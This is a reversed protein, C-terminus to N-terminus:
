KKVRQRAAPAVERPTELDKLFAAFKPHARIGDFDSDKQIHEINAATFYGGAKAKRLLELSRDILTERDKDIGAACLAFTCAADYRQGERNMTQTEAWTAFRQATAVADAPKQRHLLAKVRIALLGPIQEPKLTFAYELDAIAKEANRCDSLKSRIWPLDEEYFGPKSYGIALKEAKICEEIAKQFQHTQEYFLAVKSYSVTLDRQAEASNPDAEVLQLRVKQGKEYNALADKTYHLSLLVDGLRDYSMALDRQHVLNLPDAVTLRMRVEYSKRYFDLAVKSRGLQNNIDGLSDYSVSLDRQAQTNKPDAEALKSRLDLSKQYLALAEITQGSQLTVDGLKEYSVSLDRQAQANKPDLEVLRVRTKYSEQHFELAEKLRGAQLTAEGLKEFSIGLDRQAEANKPDSEALRALIDHCKRYYALAEMPQGLQLSVDGLKNVIISMRRQLETNKPDAKALSERVLLGKQHYAFAEKTQGLSLSLDGIKVYSVSLDLQLETNQPDSESLGVRIELGKQFFSLAEKSQGILLSVDGLRDYGVGLDKLLEPNKADVEALRLAIHQGNQFYELAVKTQGLKLAIGGLSDYSFSLERQHEANNPDADALRRRTALSQEYYNLADKTQGLRLTVDGLRAFSFGIARHPRNDGPNALVYRKATEHAQEYESKAALTNGLELEVDGMRIHSWVLTSDPSGQKRADDLIKALGKRANELLSRRLDQTGPRNVLQNQIGFVFDGYADMALKTRAQVIALTEQVEKTKANAEGKAVKEAELAVGKAIAENKANEEQAKAERLGLTTGVIGGTLVFTVVAASWALVRRRKRQARADAEARTRDLEAQKAREEAASRIRATEIAVETGNAFRDVSNPALCKKALAILESEASSADLRAFAEVLDGAAAKRQAQEATGGGFVSQGTLITCLIAGLGFVDSRETIHDLEGRAQEPPMYAPTGLVSGVTTRTDDSSGIRTGDDTIADPEARPETTESPPRWGSPEPREDSKVKALGWDMVQVEGFAGVMVNQPKLDRHLVGRSHAYGIAQAISEFVAVLNPTDGGPHKIHDDLTRGKVLKMALYPKAMSHGSKDASSGATPVDFVGLDYVPPINPHQLQGAIRAEHRFRKIAHEDVLHDHILKVAVARDFTKDWASHVTGMGGKALPERLEYRETLSRPADGSSNASLEASRKLQDPTAAQTGTSAPPAAQPLTRENM